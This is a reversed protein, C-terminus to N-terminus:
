PAELDDLALPKLEGAKAQAVGLKVSLTTNQERLRQLEQIAGWVLAELPTGSPDIVAPTVGHDELVEQLQAHRNLQRQRDEAVAAWGRVSKYAAEREAWLKEAITAAGRMRNAYELGHALARRLWAEAWQARRNLRGNTERAVKLKGYVEGLMEELIAIEQLCYDRSKRAEVRWDAFSSGIHKNTESM